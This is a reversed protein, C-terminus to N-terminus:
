AGEGAQVELLHLRVQACHLENELRAVQAVAATIQAAADKASAAPRILPTLPATYAGSETQAM